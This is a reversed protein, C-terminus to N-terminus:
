GPTLATWPGENCGTVTPNAPDAPTVGGASLKDLGDQVRHCLFVASGEAPIWEFRSFLGPHLPNSHGNQGVAFQNSENYENLTYTSTGAASVFTWLSETMNYTVGAGDVWDGLINTGGGGGTSSDDDDDPGPGSTSDDDDQSFIDDDDQGFIDDDDDPASDDDDTAGCGFLLLLPLLLSLLRM